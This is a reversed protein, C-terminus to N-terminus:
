EKPPQVEVVTASTLKAGNILLVSPNMESERGVLIPIEVVEGSSMCKRLRKRLDDPDTEETLMWDQPFESESNLLLYTPM